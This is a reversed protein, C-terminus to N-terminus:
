ALIGAACSNNYWQLRLDDMFFIQPIDLNYTYANVQIGSLARFGSTFNVLNLQCNIYGWCAPITETQEVAVVEQGLAADYRYGTFRLTCPTIGDLACGFWASDANFWYADVSARPGVGLEGALLTGAFPSNPLLTGRVPLFMAINPQSIAAYPEWKDPVYTYGNAYFLHQYPNTLPNVPLLNPQEPGSPADDFNLTFRGNEGCLTVEAAAVETATRTM